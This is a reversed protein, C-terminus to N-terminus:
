NKVAEDKSYVTRGDVITKVIETESIDVPDIKTIDHELVVIDAKKGVELSGVLHEMFVQKAGNITYVKLMDMVSVAQSAGRVFAQKGQEDPYPSGRTVAAEIGFLPRDDPTVPQDASGSMHVGEDVMKKFQYEQDFRQEGLMKLELASFVPEGYSWIPSVAAYIDLDGMREIDESRVFNAHILTHRADRAGNENAALAVSDIFLRASADGMAHTQMQYGAADLALVTDIYEQEPWNLSGRYDPEVEATEAYPELLYASKGEPVGDLFTKVGKVMQWDSVYKQADNLEAIAEEISLGEPTVRTLYNVRVRADGSRFYKDLLPRVVSTPLSLSSANQVTTIGKPSSVREYEKFAALYQEPTTEQRQLDPHLLIAADSLYGTPNGDADRYIKGGAPNNTEKTINSMQLAISNVLRGHFSTDSLVVPRDSVIEDIFASTLENEDFLNIQLGKGVLVPKDPNAAAYSKLNERYVELSAEHTDLILESAAALEREPPHSHGDVFGPLVMKGALNIVETDEGIYKEAEDNTGVFVIKDKQIAIASAISGEEDMTYVSGNTMVLSATQNSVEANNPSPDSCGPTLCLSVSFFLCSLFQHNKKSHM